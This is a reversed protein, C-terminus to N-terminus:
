PAEGGLKRGLRSSSAQEARLILVPVPGLLMRDAVSGLITRAVGHRAHTTMIVLDVNQEKVWRILEDPPYGSAVATRLRPREGLRSRLDALYARAADELVGAVDYAYDGMSAYVTDRISVVDVLDLGADSAAAVVDAISLAAEAAKSGDVPVLIRKVLFSSLNAEVNPGIILTPCDAGRVVKDAVSGLRWREIGARGHTAIVILDPTTAAAAELIEEAARGILASARVDFGDKEVAAKQEALYAQLYAVGKEEQERIERRVSVGEPLDGLGEWVSTLRVERVGISKLWPLVLLATESMRTGDLPILVTLDAM